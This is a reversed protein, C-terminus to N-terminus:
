RVEEWKRIAALRAALPKPKRRKGTPNDDLDVLPGRVRYGVTVVVEDGDCEVDLIRLKPAPM